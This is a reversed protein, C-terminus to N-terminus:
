YQWMDHELNFMEGKIHEGELLADLPNTLYSAIPRNAVNSEQIIYSSFQRKWFIDEYTRREADNHVNYVEANAFIPRLSPFYIWFMAVTGPIESGDDGFAKRNVCIGLIRVDMVSRQRDFFWDEKVEYNAIEESTYPTYQMSSGGSSDQVRVGKMLVTDLHGKSMPEMFTHDNDYPNYEYATVGADKNKLATSIVDWLSRRNANPVKPYYFDQNMKERLDIVRWIRKKWTVDAERLFTWAIVPRKPANEKVYIDDLQQSVPPSIVQASINNTCLMLVMGAVIVLFRKM